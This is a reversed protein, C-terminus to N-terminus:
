EFDLTGQDGDRDLKEQERLYERVAAEFGDRRSVANMDALDGILIAAGEGFRRSEGTWGAARHERAYVAHTTPAGRRTPKAGTAPRWM